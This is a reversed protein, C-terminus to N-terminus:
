IPCINCSILYNRSIIILLKFYIFLLQLLKLNEAQYHLCFHIRVCLNNLIFYELNISSANFSQLTDLYTIAKFNINKNILTLLAFNILAYIESLILPLLKRQSNFYAEINVTFHRFFYRYILLQSFFEFLLFCFDTVNRLHDSKAFENYLCWTINSM